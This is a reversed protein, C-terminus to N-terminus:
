EYDYVDCDDWDRDCGNRVTSATNDDEDDDQTFVHAATPASNRGRGRM